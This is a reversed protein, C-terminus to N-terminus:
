LPFRKATVAGIASQAFHNLLYNIVLPFLPRRPNDAWEDAAERLALIFHNIVPLPAQFSTIIAIVITNQADSGGRLRRANITPLYGLEAVAARIRRVTNAAIRRKEHHNNLVSSVAGISVGARRAISRVTVRVPAPPTDNSARKAM